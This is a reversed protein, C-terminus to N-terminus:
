GGKAEEIAEILVESFEVLDEEIGYKAQNFIPAHADTNVAIILTGPLITEMHEQAGSIGLALYLKPKVAKGSKGVLRSIPLWNQDIVPRSACVVGGLAEALEEAIEINDQNEIGRGVAILIDQTSIDVDEGGPEIFSKLVVRQTGVEPTFESVAASQDTQGDEAKNAGPLMVILSTEQPVTGKAFIKGGCVQCTFNLQDGDADIKKCFSILPLSLRGSLGSAIESGITTEGFLFVRPAKEKILNALINLYADWNFDKLIPNEYYLIHDALLNETLNKEKYGLLVAYVEGQVAAAMQKAQALMMYSIDTVKGQFHEILVYIDQTM